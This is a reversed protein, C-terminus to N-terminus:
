GVSASVVALASRCSRARVSPEYDMRLLAVTVLCLMLADLEICTLFYSTTPAFFLSTDCDGDNSSSGKGGTNLTTPTFRPRTKAIELRKKGCGFTNLRGDVKFDPSPLKLGLTLMLACLGKKRV